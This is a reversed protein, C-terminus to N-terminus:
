GGHPVGSKSAPVSAAPILTIRDVAWIPDPGKRTFSLCLDHRGEVALLPSKLVTIGQSATAPALPLTALVPGACSDRRVVLEGEPTVPPQTVIKKFDDGIQFNFPLQGVAVEIAGIGELPAAPWTWCPNMLDVMLIARQGRAPADDELAIPIAGSCLKLEQSVRTRITRPDLRLSVAPALPRGDRFIAASITSPVKALIPGAYVPSAATPTKGDLSYRIEGLTEGGALTVRAGDAEPSALGYPQLAALDFGLGLARYRDLEAPLRDAFDTWSRQAEPTWGTEAVAAARPFTMAELRAETRIHETWVNAQLGLVHVREAPTLGPPLPDFEYVERLGVVRERGPPEAPNASNRNDFYMLPWPTLVTDHGLKAAIIAGDIGRWSMVTASRAAGGELIEDWGVQRRGHDALYRGMRNIFWGQLADEDSIHLAAMRAQVDSSAKWEAKVAEDGGTHIYTSPFLTMVEAMVDDLFTFTTEDVNFLHSHVGWDSSPAAPAPAMSALQPYAAIAAQAHGPLDIEPVITVQRAAAYAVIERVQDQTYFGGVVRPKGTGPDIDAAPGAGAPVRWAGVETLRPYKKIELRWAQDDTLHWHLTNLKELAMRDILRKIFDVSQFNRASDLMLGRWAFRPQDAVHLGPIEVAGKGLAPTALQWATVAGYFLGADDAAAITIAAPDVDLRYAEGKPGTRVLRIINAGPSAQGERVELKLGRTRQLLDALYRADAQARLDGSPALIVTAASLHFIGEGATESAPAPTIPPLAAGYAAAGFALAAAGAILGSLPKGPRSQSPVPRRQM